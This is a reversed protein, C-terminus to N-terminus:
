STEELFSRLRERNKASKPTEMFLDAVHPPFNEADIMNPHRERQRERNEEGIFVSKSIERVYFPQRELSNDYVRSDDYYNVLGSIETLISLDSNFLNFGQSTIYNKFKEKVAGNLSLLFYTVGCNKCIDNLSAIHIVLQKIYFDDLNEPFFRRLKNFIGETDQFLYFRLAQESHFFKLAFEGNDLTLLNWWETFIDQNLKIPAEVYHAYDKQFFEIMQKKIAKIDSTKLCDGITFIPYEAGKVFIERIQPQPAPPFRSKSSFIIPVNEDNTIDVIPTRRVVGRELYIVQVGALAFNTTGRAAGVTQCIDMLAIGKERHWEMINTDGEISVLGGKKKVGTELSAVYVRADLCGGQIPSLCTPSVSGQRGEGLSIDSSSSAAATTSSSAAYPNVGWIICLGFQISLLFLGFTKKFFLIETKEVPYDELFTM